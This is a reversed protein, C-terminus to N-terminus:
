TQQLINSGALVNQGSSWKQPNCQLTSDLIEELLHCWPCSLWAEAALARKIGGSAYIKMQYCKKKGERYEEVVPPIKWGQDAQCHCRDQLASRGWHYQTDQARDEQFRRWGPPAAPLPATGARGLRATNCRPLIPQDPGSMAMYRLTCHSLRKNIPFYLWCTAQLNYLLPVDLSFSVPGSYRKDFIKWAFIQIWSSNFRLSKTRLEDHWNYLM